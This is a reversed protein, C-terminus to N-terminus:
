NYNIYIFLIYKGYNSPNDSGSGKLKDINLLNDIKLRGYSKDLISIPNSQDPCIAGLGFYSNGQYSNESSGLNKGITGNTSLKSNILEFHSNSSINIFNSKIFSNMITINNKSNIIITCNSNTQCTLNVNKILLTLNTNLELSDKGQISQSVVCQSGNIIQNCPIIKSSLKTIIIQCIFFCILFFNM